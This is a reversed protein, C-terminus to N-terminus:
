ITASFQNVSVCGSADCYRDFLIISTLLVLKISM